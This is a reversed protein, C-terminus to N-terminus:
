QFVDQLGHGAVGEHVLRTERYISAKLSMFYMLFVLVGVLLAFVAIIALIVGVIILGANPTGSGASAVVGAFIAVVVAVILLYIGIIAAMLVLYTLFIWRKCGKTLAASRKLSDVVGLNEAVLAPMAVSWLLALIIGPIILLAYGLLTGLTGILLVGMLPLMKRLAAPFLDGIDVKQGERLTAYAHFGGGYLAAFNLLSLLGSVAIVGLFAPSRFIATPDPLVKAGEIPLSLAAMGASFPLTLLSSITSGAIYAIAVFGLVPWFNWKLQAWARSYVRGISYGQNM